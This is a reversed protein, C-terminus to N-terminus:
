DYQICYRCVFKFARTFPASDVNNPLVHLGLSTRSFVSFCREWRFSGSLALWTGFCSKLKLMSNWAVGRDASEASKNSQKQSLPLLSTFFKTHRLRTNYIKTSVLCIVLRPGLQTALLELLRVKNCTRWSFVWILRHIRATQDSNTTWIFFRQMRLMVFVRRNLYISFKVVLFPFNESLFIRINKM